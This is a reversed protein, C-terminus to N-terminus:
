EKLLISPYDTCIYDFGMKQFTNKESVSNANWLTLEVGAQHCEKALDADVTENSISLGDAQCAKVIEVPNLPRGYILCHTKIKSNLEKIKKLPLHHFCKVISRSEMETKNLANIVKQECGPVKIEVFIVTGQFSKVLNLVEELSPIKEGKGADLKRLDEFKKEKVFGKEKTTRMLTSDHIVVLEGDLSLHIDIEVGDCGKKLAWEISGLTNEPYEGMAGRHGIIKSKFAENKPM